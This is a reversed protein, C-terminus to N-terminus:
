LTPEEISLQGAKDKLFKEIKCRVENRPETSGRVISLVSNRSIGIMKAVSESNMPNSTMWDWLRQGIDTKTQKRM